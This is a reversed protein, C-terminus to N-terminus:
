PRERASEFYYHNTGEVYAVRWPVNFHHDQPGGGCSGTIQSSPPSNIALTFANVPDTFDTLMGGLCSLYVLCCLSILPVVVLVVFFAKKWRKNNGGSRYEKFIISVKFTQLLGPAELINQPADFTWNHRFPTDVSGIVLTSSGFVALAEALSPLSPPLEAKELAFQTLIRANSANNNSSGGNLDM